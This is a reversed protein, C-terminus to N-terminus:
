KPQEQTLPRIADECDDCAQVYAKTGSKFAAAEAHNKGRTVACAKIAAAYAAQEVARALAIIGRAVEGATVEEKMLALLVFSENLTADRIEDERLM